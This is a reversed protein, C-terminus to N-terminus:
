LVVLFYNSLALTNNLCTGAPDELDLVPPLYGAGIYSSAVSVFYNAESIATNDEPLAFHYAGLKIGASNGNAMNTYFKSDTYCTGKTAKVFAFSKGEASVQTWNITGQVASVDIGLINKSFNNNCLLTIFLLQLLYKRM